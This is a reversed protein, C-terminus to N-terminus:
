FDYLGEKSVDILPNQAVLAADLGFKIQHVQNDVEAINVKESQINWTLIQQCDECEAAAQGALRLSESGNDTQHDFCEDADSKAIIM